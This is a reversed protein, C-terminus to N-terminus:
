ADRGEKTLRSAPRRGPERAFSPSSTARIGARRCAIRAADACYTTRGGDPWGGFGAASRTRVTTCDLGQDEWTFPPIRGVRSERWTGHASPEVGDTERFCPWRQELEDIEVTLNEAM